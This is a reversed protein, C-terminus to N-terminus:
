AGGAIGAMEGLYVRAEPGYNLLLDLASCGPVFGPFNQRRPPESAPVVRVEVGAGEAQRRDGEASEPLTVLERAGVAALVEPLSVPAGPLDSALAVRAPARLARLTWGVTPATFAALSPAPAALLAELEPAYHAYFPASGYHHRLTKRHVDRWRGEVVEVDGLARGVAGGALPVTLWAWGANPDGEAVPEPTRVRTRNQHGQRSYPFTDAVVVLDAHLGLAAYALRPLYEPPRVAVTM